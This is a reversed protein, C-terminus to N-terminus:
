VMNPNISNSDAGCITGAADGAHEPDHKTKTMEAGQAGGQTATQRFCPLVRPGFSPARYMLQKALRQYCTCTRPTYSCLQEYQKKSFAFVRFGHGTCHSSDCAGMNWSSCAVCIAVKLIYIYVMQNNLMAM